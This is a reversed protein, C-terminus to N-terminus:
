KAGQAPGKLGSKLLVIFGIVVFVGIIILSLDKATFTMIGISFSNLLATSEQEIEGGGLMVVVLVVLIVIIVPIGIVSMKSTLKTTDPVILALTFFVVLIGIMIAGTGPLAFSVVKSVDPSLSVVFAFVLAILAIAGKNVKAKDGEGSKFLEMKKLVSFVVAFVIIFVSFFTLPNIGSPVISSLANYLNAFMGEEAM